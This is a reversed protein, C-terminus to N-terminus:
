NTMFMMLTLIPKLGSAMAREQRGAGQQAAQKRVAHQHQGIRQRAGRRAVVRPAEAIREGFPAHDVRQVGPAPMLALWILWHSCVSLAQTARETSRSFRARSRAAGAGVRRL